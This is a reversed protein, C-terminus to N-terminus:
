CEVGLVGLAEAEPGVALGRPPAEGGLIDVVVDDPRTDLGHCGGLAVGLAEM